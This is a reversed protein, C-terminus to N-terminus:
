SRRQGNQYFSREGQETHYTRHHSMASFLAEQVNSADWSRDCLLDSDFTISKYGRSEKCTVLVEHGDVSLAELIYKTFDVAESSM